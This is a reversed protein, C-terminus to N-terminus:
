AVSTPPATGYLAETLEPYWDKIIIRQCGLVLSLGIRLDNQLHVFQEESLQPFVASRFLKGLGPCSM